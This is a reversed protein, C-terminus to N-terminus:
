VVISDLMPKRIQTSWGVTYIQKFSQAYQNHCVLILEARRINM